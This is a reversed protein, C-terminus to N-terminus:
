FLKCEKNQKYPTSNNLKFLHLIKSKYVACLFTIRRKNLIGGRVCLKITVLSAPSKTDLGSQLIALKDKVHNVM